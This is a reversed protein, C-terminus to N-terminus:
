FIIFSKFNFVSSTVYCLCYDRFTSLPLKIELLAPIRTEDNENWAADDDNETANANGYGYIASPCSGYKSEDNTGDYSLFSQFGYVNIFFGRLYFFFLQSPLASKFTDCAQSFVLVYFSLVNSSEKLLHFVLFIYFECFIYRVQCRAM